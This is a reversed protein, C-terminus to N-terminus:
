QWRATTCWDSIQQASALWCDSDNSIQALEPLLADTVGDMYGPWLSDSHWDLVLVGENKRVTEALTKFYQIRALNDAGSQFLAQDMLTPPVECLGVYDGTSRDFPRYPYCSGRRFGGVTNMGLASSHKLESAAAIRLSREPNTADLSWYHGRFGHAEVGYSERVRQVETSFREPTTWAHISSHLGVEAGFRECTKALWQVEPDRRSYVLDRADSPTDYRGWTGIYYTGRIGHAQQFKLWAITSQEYPDEGRPRSRM